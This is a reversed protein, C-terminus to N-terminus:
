SGEKDQHAPQPEVPFSIEISRISRDSVKPSGEKEWDWIEIRKYKALVRADTENEAEVEITAVETSVTCKELKIKYTNM